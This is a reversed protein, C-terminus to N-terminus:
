LDVYPLKRVDLSHSHTLALLLQSTALADGLARHRGSIEIGYFSCLADLNHSGVSRGSRRSITLTDLGIRAPMPQGARRFEARLFSVDFSLNHGLLIKGELRKAVPGALAGFTPAISAQSNDIGHIARAAAPIHREPNVLSQWTWSSSGSRGLGVLALEVIRDRSPSLGTTELDIAIVNSLDDQAVLHTFQDSAQNVYNM